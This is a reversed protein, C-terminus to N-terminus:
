DIRGGNSIALRPWFTQVAEEPRPEAFGARFQATVLPLPQSM